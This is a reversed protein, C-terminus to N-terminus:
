AGASFLGMTTMYGPNGIIRLMGLRLVEGGFPVQELPVLPVQLYVRDVAQNTEYEVANHENIPRAFPDAHGAVQQTMGRRGDLVLVVSYRQLRQSFCHPMCGAGVTLWRLSGPVVALHGFSLLSLDSVVRHHGHHIIGLQGNPHDFGVRFGFADLTQHGFCIVLSALDQLPITAEVRNREAVATIWTQANAARSSGKADTAREQHSSGFVDIPNIKEQVAIHLSGGPLLLHAIQGTCAFSVAQDRLELLQARLHQQERLGFV